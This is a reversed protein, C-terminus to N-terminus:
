LSISRNRGSSKAKYLAEDAIKLLERQNQNEKITAIGISVTVKQNLNFDHNEVSKRINEAFLFAKDLDTNSAVILFEEGGWRSCIDSDRSNKTFIKSIEKIVFDGKDHGFTDNIKKFFDIDILIVSFPTKYRNFKKIEINLINSSFRRNYLKSLPDIESLNKLKRNQRIGNIGLFLIITLLISVVTMSLRQLEITKEHILISNRQEDIKIFLEDLEKKTKLMTEEQNKQASELKQIQEEKLKTEISALKLKEKELEINKFINDLQKKKLELDLEQKKILNEKSKISSNQTNIKNQQIAIEAEKLEIEKNKLEINQNLSLITDKQKKLEDQSSKYLKAVDIESGGLLIINSSLNLNRNLINAKNIEFDIKASKHLLNIMVQKKNEYSDSILLTNENEYRFFLEEFSSNSDHDIFIAQINPLFINEKYFLIEINKGKLSKRAGLMKFMNKLTENKSVILVRYKKLNEEKEWYINQLFKYTYAVKIQEERIENSSAFNFILLIFISRFFM